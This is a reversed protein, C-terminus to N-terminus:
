INLLRVFGTITRIGTHLWDMEVDLHKNREEQLHLPWLLLLLLTNFYNQSLVSWLIFFGLLQLHAIWLVWQLVYAFWLWISRSCKLSTSAAAKISHEERSYDPRVANHKKAGNAGGTAHVREGLILEFRGSVEVGAICLSAPLLSWAM